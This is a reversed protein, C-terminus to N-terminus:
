WSLPLQCSGHLSGGLGSCRASGKARSAEWSNGWVNIKTKLLNSNTKQEKFGFFRFQGARAPPPQPACLSGSGLLSILSPLPPLPSSALAQHHPSHLCSLWAQIVVAFLLTAVRSCARWLDLMVNEKQGSIFFSFPLILVPVGQSLRLRSEQGCVGTAGGQPSRVPCPLACARLLLWHLYDSM